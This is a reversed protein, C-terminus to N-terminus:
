RTTELLSPSRRSWASGWCARPRADRRPRREPRLLGSRPVVHARHEPGPGRGAAGGPVLRAPEARGAYLPQQPGPVNTVILNFLRRSAASAVRAGMSHLTPPAFGALGVLAQAGVAGGVEAHARMAYAIQHLRVSPNAEGVPLDVVFAAVRNGVRAGGGLRDGPDGAEAGPVESVAQAVGGAAGDAGQVSVPVLARVVTAPVVSEGRGLLWTRLAGAVTALVVDNVSLQDRGPRGHRARM